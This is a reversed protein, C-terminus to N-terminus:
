GDAPLRCPSPGARVADLILTGERLVGIRWLGDISRIGPRTGGTVTATASRCVIADGARAGPPQATDGGVVGLVAQLASVAIGLPRALRQAATGAGSWALSTAGAGAREIPTPGTAAAREDDATVVRVAIPGRSRVMATARRGRVPPGVIRLESGWGPHFQALERGVAATLLRDAQEEGREEVLWARAGPLSVAGREGHLSAALARAELHDVAAPELRAAVRNALESTAVAGVAFAAGVAGVLAVWEVTSQARRDAPRRM